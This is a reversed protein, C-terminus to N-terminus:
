TASSGEPKAITGSPGPDRPDGAVPVVLPGVPLLLLPPPDWLTPPDRSVTAKWIKTFLKGVALSVTSDTSVTFLRIEHVTWFIM